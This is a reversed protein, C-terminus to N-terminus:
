IEQRKRHHRRAPDAVDHGHLICKEFDAGDHEVPNLRVPPQALDLRDDARTDRDIELMPALNDQMTIIKRQFQDGRIMGSGPGAGRDTTREVCDAIRM